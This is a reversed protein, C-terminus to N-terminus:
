NEPIKKFCDGGFIGTDINKPKFIPMSDTLKSDPVFTKMPLSTSDPLSLPCDITLYTYESNSDPQQAILGATSDATMVPVANVKSSDPPVNSIDSFTGQNGGTLLIAFIFLISGFEKM